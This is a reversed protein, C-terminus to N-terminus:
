KIDREDVIDVHYEQYDEETLKLKKTLTVYIYEWAADYSKFTKTPGGSLRVAAQTKNYKELSYNGAWDRIM